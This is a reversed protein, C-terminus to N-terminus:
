VFQVKIGNPDQVFFFKVVPVPSIIPTPAYGKETLEAHLKEVDEVHFGISPAYQYMLADATEILEVATEGEANCLFVIHMPGAKMENQVSLGAINKYFEVSQELKATNITIHAFKM